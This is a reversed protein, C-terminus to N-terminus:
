YQLNLMVRECWDVIREFFNGSDMVQAKATPNFSIYEINSNSLEEMGIDRALEEIADNSLESELKVQLLINESTILNLQSSLTEYESNLQSQVTQYYIIVGVLSLILLLYMSLKLTINYDVRVQRRYKNFQNNDMSEVTLFEEPTNEKKM